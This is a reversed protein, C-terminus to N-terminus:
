TGPGLRRLRRQAYLVLGRHAPRGARGTWAQAMRDFTSTYSDRKKKGTFRFEIAGRASM